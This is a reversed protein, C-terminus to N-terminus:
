RMWPLENQSWDFSNYFSWQSFKDYFV